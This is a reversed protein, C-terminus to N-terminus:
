ATRRIRIGWAAYRKLIDSNKLKVGYVKSAGSAAFAIATSQVQEGTANTSTIEKIATNPDDTLNFLGLTVTGAGECALTAELKYTGAPLIISDFAVVDTNPALKDYTGGALYAATPTAVWGALGGFEHPIPVLSASGAVAASSALDAKLLRIIAGLSNAPESDAPTALSDWTNAM